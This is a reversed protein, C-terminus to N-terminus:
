IGVIRSCGFRFRFRPLGARTLFLQGLDDASRALGELRLKPLGEAVQTSIAKLMELVLYSMVGDEIDTLRVLLPVDGAGGLMLDIAAHALSLDIDLFSRPTQPTLALVALCCPSPIASRLSTAALIRLDEVELKVQEDFLDSLRSQM